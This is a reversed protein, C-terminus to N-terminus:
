KTSFLNHSFKVALNKLPTTPSTSTSFTSSSQQLSASSSTPDFSNAFKRSSSLATIPAALSTNSTSADASSMNLSINQHGISTPQIPTLTTIAPTNIMMNIANCINQFAPSNCKNQKKFEEIIPQLQNLVAVNVHKAYAANWFTGTHNILHEISQQEISAQSNANPSPSYSETLAPGGPTTNISGSNVHFECNDGGNRIQTEGYQNFM